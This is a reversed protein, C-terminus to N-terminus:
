ILGLHRLIAGAEARVKQSLHTQVTNVLYESAHMNMFILAYRVPLCVTESESELLDIIEPIGNPETLCLIALIASFLPKTPNTSNDNKIEKLIIEAIQDPTQFRDSGEFAADLLEDLYDPGFEVLAGAAAYQVFVDTDKITTAILIKISKPFKINGLIVATIYRLYVVENNIYSTIYEPYKKALQILLWYIESKMQKNLTEDAIRQMLDDIADENGVVCLLIVAVLDNLNGEKQLCNHILQKTAKVQEGNLILQQVSLFFSNEKVKAILPDIVVDGLDILAEASTIRIYYDDHELSNIFLPILEVERAEALREIALKRIKKEDHSLVDKLLPIFFPQIEMTMSFVANFVVFPDEDKLLMSYEELATEGFENLIAMAGYIENGTADTPSTSKIIEVVRAIIEKQYYKNKFNEEDFDLSHLLYALKKAGRESLAITPLNSLCYRLGFFNRFFLHTFRYSDTNAQVVIRLNVAMNILSDINAYSNLLQVQITTQDEWPAQMLMTAAMYELADLLNRFESEQNSKEANIKEYLRRFRSRVGREVIKDKLHFKDQLGLLLSDLEHKDADHFAEAFLCLMFPTDLLNTLECESDILSKLDKFPDLYQKIQNETLPSVLVAGNLPFYDTLFQSTRVRCTLVIKNNSPLEQVFITQPDVSSLGEPILEDLGDLILLANGSDLISKVNDPAGYSSQLWDSFSRGPENTWTPVIGLIPLPQSIDQLRRIISDRIFLLLSITKGAGPEGLLLLRGQFDIYAERVDNYYGKPKKPKQHRKGIITVLPDDAPRSYLTKVANPVYTLRTQITQAAESIDGSAVLLANKIFQDVRDFLTRLYDAFPDPGSNIKLENIYTIYKIHIEDANYQTNVNQNSQIFENKM